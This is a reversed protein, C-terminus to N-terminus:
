PTVVMGAQVQTLAAQITSKSMPALVVDNAAMTQLSTRASDTLSVPLPDNSPMYAYFPNTGALPSLPRGGSTSSCNSSGFLPEYDPYFQQQLLANGLVCFVNSFAGAISMLDTKVQMPANVVASLCRFVNMGAQATMQAVSVLQGAIQEGNTVATNVATYLAISQQLYARAPAVLASDVDNQITQEYTTLDNISAILSDLGSSQLAQKDTAPDVSNFTLYDLADIDDSLVTLSVQFQFLLPRQKSRKLSFTVPAVLSVIGDLADAYVLKVLSPDKGASVANKRLTHWQTFVTSFLFEFRGAGDKGDGGTPAPRWGTHGSLSINPVGPGFSDAWAGGLTQQVSMRSSDTRSLDEPRVALNVTVLQSGANSQDDLVFSIPRVDAKQSSPSRGYM